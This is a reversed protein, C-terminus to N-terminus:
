LGFISHGQQLVNMEFAALHLAQFVGGGLLPPFILNDARCCSGVM